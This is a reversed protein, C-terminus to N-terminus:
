ERDIKFESSTVLQWDEITNCNFLCSRDSVPITKVQQQALWGQFSKGGAALYAELSPLCNRRYFGCLPEYGKPHRPLFAIETPLVTALNESWQKVQSSNLRALDCALLLVWETKIHQLGQAFGILPSNSKTAPSLLTETILQCGPPLIDRYKETWPTVVYVQTACEAAITCIRSLMTQGNITLLAKDRQMRSSQGGALVIAALSPPAHQTM